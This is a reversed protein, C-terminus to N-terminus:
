ASSVRTLLFYRVHLFIKWSQQESSRQQRGGRKRLDHDAYSRGGGDDLRAPGHGMLAVDPDVSVVTPISGPVDPDGAAPVTRWMGVLMPDGMVPHMTVSPIDQYFPM